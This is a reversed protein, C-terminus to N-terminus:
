RIKELVRGAEEAYPGGGARVEELRQVARDAQELRLHCNALIWLALTATASDPSAAAFELPVIAREPAAGLALALGLLWAVEPSEPARERAASLFREASGYNGAAIHGRGTAILEDLEDPGAAPTEAGAEAPPAGVEPGSAGRVDATVAVDTPFRAWQTIDLRGPHPRLLVIAVVAAALVSALIAPRRLGTLGVQVLRGFRRLAPAGADTAAPGRNLARLLEPAHDRFTAAVRAGRELEAFCADCELLHEELRRREEEDLLDHEFRAILAGLEPRACAPTKSDAM